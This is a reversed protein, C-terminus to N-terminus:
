LWLMEDVHTGLMLRILVDVAMGFHVFSLGHPRFVVCVVLLKPIVLILSVTKELFSYVLQNDFIFCYSGFM